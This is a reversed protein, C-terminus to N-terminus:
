RKWNEGQSLEWLGFLDNYFAPRAFEFEMGKALDKYGMGRASFPRLGTLLEEMRAGPVSLIIENEDAAAREFEGVDPLTVRYEGTNIPVVCSYACSDIADIQTSITKGTVNKVAWALHRLQANTCYILVVDPETECASLPMVIVGKYKNAPLTPFKAFFEKAADADGIGLHKCVVGFAATGERCEVFGFAILPNWCWESYKDTYVTKGDRRALGFAQCLAMHKNLDRMPRLARDPVEAENEIMKVAVPEYRLILMERLEKSHNINRESNTM